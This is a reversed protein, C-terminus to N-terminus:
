LFRFKELNRCNAFASNGIIQISSSLNLWKLNVYVKQNLNLNTEDSSIIGGFANDGITKIGNPLIIDKINSTDLSNSDNLLLSKIGVISNVNFNEDNYQMPIVLFEQELGLDTIGTIIGDYNINFYKTANNYALNWNILISTELKLNIINSNKYVYQNKLNITLNFALTDAITNNFNNSFNIFVSDIYDSNLNNINNTLLNLLSNTSNYCQQYVESITNFRIFLNYLNSFDLNDISTTEIVNTNLNCDVNIASDDNSSIFEIKNINYNVM